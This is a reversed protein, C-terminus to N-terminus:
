PSKLHKDLRGVLDDYEVSVGTWLRFSAMAQRVLFEHGDVVPLGLEGATLIAPTTELSYPLDILGAAVDMVRDPLAEGRMGLPTTNVLLAGAVGAGWTVVEGGFEEALQRARSGRRASIYLSRDDDIAALVARASGGAGLLLTAGVNSFRDSVALERFTTSDTSHGWVDGGVSSLTNVSHSREAEPSRLDATGAAVTKLPMTVNLGRFVGRRLEDVTEVLTRVDARIREYTGELGALDLMASHIEPSMSQAVPDGLVALRYFSM